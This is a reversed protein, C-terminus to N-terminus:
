PKTNFKKRISINLEKEAIDVMRSFALAKLKADELERELDAIRRKFQLYEETEEQKQPQKPKNPKSTMPLSKPEINPPQIKFDTFYGLRRMWKLLVGHDEKGTYKKWIAAKTCRTSILEEILQHKEADTFYKGGKQDIKKDM